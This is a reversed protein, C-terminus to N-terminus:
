VESNLISIAQTVANRMRSIENNKENEKNELQVKFSNEKMVFENEISELIKESINSLDTIKERIEDVNM